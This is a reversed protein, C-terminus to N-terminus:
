RTRGLFVVARTLNGTEPQCFYVGPPVLRGKRDVGDWVAYGPRAPVKLRRVLRGSRDLIRVPVDRNLGSGLVIRVRDSFPSPEVVLRDRGRVASPSEVVGASQKYLKATVDLFATANAQEQNSFVAYYDRPGALVVSHEAGALNEDNVFAQFSDQTRYREFQGQDSIFCDIAGPAQVKAYFNSGNGNYCDYGYLAEHGVSYSIDLRYPGPSPAPAPAIRLSDMGTELTCAYFFHTGPICNTSDVIRGAPFTVQGAVVHLYYNQWDGLTTSYRGDRGTVGYFCDAMGGYWDESSIKIIAGDRPRGVSDRVEVTLTCAYSYTEVVSRQLGDNRWEWVGSVEKSGGYRRDYAIGPNNIYSSGGGLDVQWPHFEGQWCIECWVHDENIDCVGGCPILATRAAAQLLDQCEGCNGHHNHAIANPQIPRIENASWPLTWAVWRGVVAVAPLSDAFPAGNGPWSAQLGDWLVRTRSLKEKLIPYGSDATFFLYERWFKDYVYGPQEDTGKPMVVWWYYIDRPIEVLTTEGSVLARYRTTSYYDGGQLPDGHDIIDVYDLDRDIDYAQQVNDILLQTPTATLAYPSLHAIQFCLEDLFRKDPCNLIVDAYTNQQPSTLRRLNDSLDDQLWTPALPIAQRASETLYEPLLTDRLSETASDLKIALSAGAPIMERLQLSDLLTWGSDSPLPLAPSPAARAEPEIPYRVAQRSGAGPEVPQSVSTVGPGAAFLMGSCILLVALGSARGTM